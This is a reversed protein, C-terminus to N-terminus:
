APSISSPAKDTVSGRKYKRRMPRNWKTPKIQETRRNWFKSVRRIRPAVVSHISPELYRFVQREPERWHDKNSDRGGGSKKGEKLAQGCRVSGNGWWRWCGDAWGMGGDGDVEGSGDPGRGVTTDAIDVMGGHCTKVRGGLKNQGKGMRACCIIEGGSLVM